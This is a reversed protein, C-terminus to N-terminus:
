AAAPFNCRIPVRRGVKVSYKLSRDTGNTFKDHYCSLLRQFPDRFLVGKTWTPDTLIETARRMGVKYLTTLNRMKWWPEARWDGDDQLRLFLKKWESSAM